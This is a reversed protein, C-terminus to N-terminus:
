SVSCDRSAAIESMDSHTAPKVLEDRVYRTGSNLVRTHKKYLSLVLIYIAHRCGAILAQIRWGFPPHCVAEIIRPHVEAVFIQVNAM